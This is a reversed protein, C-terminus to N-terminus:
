SSLPLILLHQISYFYVPRQGVEAHAPADKGLFPNLECACDNASLFDGSAVKGGVPFWTVNLPELSVTVLCMQRPIAGAGAMLISSTWAEKLSLNQCIIHCHLFSPDNGFIASNVCQSSDKNRGGDDRNNGMSTIFCLFFHYRYPFKPFQPKCPWLICAANQAWLESSAPVM